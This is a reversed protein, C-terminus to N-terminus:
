CREGPKLGLAKKAYRMCTERAASCDKAIQGYSMSRSRCDASFFRHVCLLFLKMGAAEDSLWVCDEFIQKPTKGALPDGLPPRNHWMRARLWDEQEQREEPM